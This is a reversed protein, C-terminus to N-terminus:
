ERLGNLYFLHTDESVEGARFPDFDDLNDEPGRASDKRCGNTAVDDLECSCPISDVYCRM